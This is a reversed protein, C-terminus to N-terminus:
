KSYKRFGGILALQPIEVAEQPTVQDTQFLDGYREIYIIRLAEMVRPLDIGKPCRSVCTLCSACTWITQTQLVEELGLQAFRLVQNPLVDMSFALPCGASCKGCQNCALLNQGSITVIEKVFESQITDISIRTRMEGGTNVCEGAPKREIDM